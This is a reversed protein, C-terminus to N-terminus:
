ARRFILVRDNGGYDKRAELLRYGATEFIVTVSAKQDWGIELGVIGDEVLVGAAGRAIARYADLGDAGGDLARLPDFDRVDPALGAIETSPIYPPNSVIIDFRGSVDAFWDSQVTRFRDAMGNIHANARAAELAGLSLDTGVASLGPVEKLLALAIAGTGTGLDLLRCAGNVALRDRLYPAVLDVLVETDPRPELTDPSLSLRLGHFDRYGLIRHVPEGALRRRRMVHLAEVQEATLARDPDRILDLAALETVHEFLLRADLDAAPRDAARFLDRLDRLAQQADSM